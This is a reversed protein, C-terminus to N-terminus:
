FHGSRTRRMSYYKWIEHEEKKGKRYGLIGCVVGGVIVGILFALIIWWIM